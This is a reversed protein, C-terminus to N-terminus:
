GVLVGGVAKAARGEPNKPPVLLPKYAKTVAPLCLGHSDGEVLKAPM